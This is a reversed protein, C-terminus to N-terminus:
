QRVPTIGLGEINAPCSEFMGFGIGTLMSALANLDAAQTLRPRLQELGGFDKCGKVLPRLTEFNKVRTFDVSYGPAAAAAQTKVAAIGAGTIGDPCDNFLAMGHGAMVGRLSELNASAQMQARLPELADFDRCDKVLPRLSELNSVRSFDIVYDRAAVPMALVVLFTLSGFSSIFSSYVRLNKICKDISM